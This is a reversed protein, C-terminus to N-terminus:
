IEDIISGDRIIIANKLVKNASIKNEILIDAYRVVIQSLDKSVTKYFIAPTHDVAYHVIGDVTYIPDEITTPITTEIAKERDCSVDIILSGKKMRKLDEKYIIHDTRSLDWFVTNCIIDYKELEKKFLNELRLGYVKINAGLSVFARYCGRSANGNGLIAVKLNKPLIGYCQIAHRVAAEGAIENNKWFVHRNGEFMNEWAIVTLNKNILLTRLAENQAAHVWGFLVQSDTFHDLYDADGIKPDCVIDCKLIEDRSRINIGMKAYDEDDYGLVDGYGQEVFVQEKNKINKIDQPVLARRRENEKSSIIFGITKM